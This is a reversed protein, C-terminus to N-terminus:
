WTEGTICREENESFVLWSQDRCAIKKKAEGFFLAFFATDSNELSAPVGGKSGRKKPLTWASSSLRLRKANVYGNKILPLSQHFSRNGLTDVM